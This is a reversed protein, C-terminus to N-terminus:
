KHSSGAADVVAEIVTVVGPVKETVTVSLALPHVAIALSVIVSFIFAGVAAIAVGAVVSNFQKIVAIFKSALIEMPCPM